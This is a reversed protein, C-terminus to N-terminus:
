CYPANVALSRDEEAGTTRKKKLQGMRPNRGCDFLVRMGKRIWYPTKVTGESNNEIHNKSAKFVALGDRPLQMGSM